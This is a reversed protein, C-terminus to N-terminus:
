RDNYIFLLVHLHSSSLCFSCREWVCVVEWNPLPTASVGKNAPNSFPMRPFMFTAWSLPSLVCALAPQEEHTWSKMNEKISMRWWCGEYIVVASVSGPILLLPFLHNSDTWSSAWARQSSSMQCFLRASARPILHHSHNIFCSAVRFM